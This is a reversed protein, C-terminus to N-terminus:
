EGSEKYTIDLYPRVDITYLNLSANEITANEPIMSINFIIYKQQPPETIPANLILGFLIVGIMVGIMTDNKAKEIKSIM